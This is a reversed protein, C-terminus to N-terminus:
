PSVVRDTAKRLATGRSIKAAAGAGVENGVLTGAAAGWPGLTAGGAVGGILGGGRQVLSPIVGSQQLNHAQNAAGPYQTPHHLIKGAENATFLRHLTAPDDSFVTKMSESNDRLFQNYGKMNWQTQQSTGIDHARQAFHAKIESLAQQAKPALDGTIGRLTDTIHSLQEPPMTELTRMVNDSAVKRNVGNPGSTDLLASIGKPDDLVRGRESRLARSEKYIDAGASKTVDDDISDKLVRVLKSNAPSWEDNLYKRITEAQQVSATISGNDDVVGLKKLYANLGSRLGVRDQNTMLSDDGLASQFGSLDTAEGKARIDAQSYLDKIRADYDDSLSELAGTVANGRRIDATQDSGVRGGTKAVTDQSYNTLASREADFAGKLVRGAPSDNKNIEYDTSAALPDGTLASRRYGDNLGIEALVRARRTQEDASVELIPAKDNPEHFADSEAPAEASKTATEATGTNAIASRASPAEPALEKPLPTGAPVPVDGPELLPSPPAQTPMVEAVHNRIASIGKGVKLPVIVQSTANVAAGLAPSGTLDSTKQGLWDGVEGWKRFPYAAMEATDQGLQTHPKYTLANSVQNVRAAASMSPSDSFTNHIGQAIGAYGAIPTAVMGTVMNAAAEGAAMRSRADMMQADSVMQSWSRTDTFKEPKSDKPIGISSSPILDHDPQAQINALAGDPILDDAM